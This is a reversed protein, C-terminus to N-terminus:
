ASVGAARLADLIGTTAAQRVAPADAAGQFVQHITIGGLNTTATTNGAMAMAPAALTGVENNLGGAARKMGEHIINIMSEGSKGLGRLPSSPDKPESFPLLDKMAKLKDKFWTDISTWGSKMGDWIGQVIAQGSRRLADLQSTISELLGPVFKNFNLRIREIENKFLTSFFEWFAVGIGKIGDLWKSFDLTFAGVFARFISAILDVGLKGLAGLDSWLLRWWDRVIDGHAEWIAALGTAATQTDSQIQPFRENIVKILDNITDKIPQIILPFQDRFFVILEGVKESIGGFAPLLTEKIYDVIQKMWEPPGASPKEQEGRIKNLASEWQLTPGLVDFDKNVKPPSFLADLAAKLDDAAKTLASTGKVVNSEEIEPMEALQYASGGAAAKKAAAERENALQEELSSIQTLIRYYEASGQTTKALEGRMLEIKGPTDALQMRYSLIADNLQEQERRAEEALQEQKKAAAEAERLAAEAQQKRAEALQEQLRIEEAVLNNTEVQQSLVAQAVDLQDQAATEQEQASDVATQATEIAADRKEEELDIQDQLAMQQIELRAAEKEAATADFNNITNQLEVLRQQDRLDQQAKRVDDLSGRLPNLIKDYRDTVDNLQEQARATAESATRLRFYAEVMNGVSKGAPGGLRIIENLTNQSVSGVRKFEAIAATIAERTGLVRSVIDTDAIDKTGVFSRLISEISQGLTDLASFDAKAFGGVFEGAAARGWEILEPLLRPPSGPQLWYVFLNRLTMLAPTIYRIASALGNAINVMIQEAYPKVRTALDILANLISTYAPRLADGITAGLDRYVASLRRTANATDRATNAFDGQSNKTTDLIFQFRALVKDQETIEDKTAALGMELAKAAVVTENLVVGWVRLPETEGVLGARLKELAVEPTANNLSALDSALEVMEMSMGAAEKRAFGMATFLNGFGGAAELAGQTSQGLSNAATRAWAVVEAASQGFVVGAKNIAEGLDSSASIAGGMLGITRQLGNVIGDFLRQGVGQLIGQLVGGFAQTKSKAGAFAKDLKKDDGSIEVYADGLKTM